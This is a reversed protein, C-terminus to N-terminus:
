PRGRPKRGGRAVIRVVTMTVTTLAGITTIAYIIVQGLSGFPKTLALALCAVSLVMIASISTSFLVMAARVNPDLTPRTIPESRVKQRNAFGLEPKKIRRGPVQERKTPSNAMIALGTELGSVAVGLDDAVQYQAGSELTLQSLEIRTGGPVV